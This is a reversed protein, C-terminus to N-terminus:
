PHPHAMYPYSHRTGISQKLCGASQAIVVVRKALLDCHQEAQRDGPSVLSSASFHNAQNRETAVLTIGKDLLATSKMAAAKTNM